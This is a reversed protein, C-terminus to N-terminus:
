LLPKAITAPSIKFHQCFEKKTIKPPGAAWIIRICLKNLKCSQKVIPPCEEWIRMARQIVCWKDSHGIDDYEYVLRKLINNPNRPPADAVQKWFKKKPTRFHDATFGRTPDTYLTIPTEQTPKAPELAEAHVDAYAPVYDDLIRSNVVGCNKCLVDGDAHHWVLSMENCCAM